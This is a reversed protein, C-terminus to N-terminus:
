EELVKLWSYTYEPIHAMLSPWLFSEFSLGYAFHKEKTDRSMAYLFYYVLPRINKKVEDLKADKFEPHMKICDIVKDSFGKAMRKISGRTGLRLKIYFRNQKSKDNLLEKGFKILQERIALLKKKEAGLYAKSVYAFSKEYHGTYVLRRSREDDDMVGASPAMKKAMYDIFERAFVDRRGEFWWDELKGKKRLREENEDVSCIKAGLVCKREFDKPEFTIDPVFQKVMGAVRPYYKEWREDGPVPILCDDVGARCFGWSEPIIYSVFDIPNFTNHIHGYKVAKLTEAACPSEFTYVFADGPEVGLEGVECGILNAVAASRSYGAIWLKIRGAGYVGKLYKELFGRAREAAKKFGDAPGTDGIITNEYWEPGYSAGRFGCVILTIMEGDSVIDKKAAFVGLSAESPERKFDGNVSFARFGLKGILERVNEYQRDAGYRTSPFASMCLALSMSRLKPNDSKADEEFWLDDYEFEASLDKTENYNAFTFTGKIM